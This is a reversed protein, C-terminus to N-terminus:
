LIFFNIAIVASVPCFLMSAIKLPGHIYRRTRSRWPSLKHFLRLKNVPQYSLSKDSTPLSCANLAPFFILCDPIVHSMTSVDTSDRAMRVAHSANSPMPFM